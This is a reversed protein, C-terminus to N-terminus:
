LPFPEVVQHLYVLYIPIAISPLQRGGPCTFNLYEQELNSRFQFTKLACRFRPRASDVVKLCLSGITKDPLHSSLNKAIDWCIKGRRLFCIKFWKLLQRLTRLLYLFVFFIKLVSRLLGISDCLLFSLYM